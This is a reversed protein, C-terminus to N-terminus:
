RLLQGPAPWAAAPWSRGDGDLADRVAVWAAGGTYGFMEDEIARQSWAAGRLARIRAVDEPRMNKPDAKPARPAPATFLPGGPLFIVDDDGDGDLDGASFGSGTAQEVQPIVVPRARGKTVLAAPRTMGNVVAGYERRAVDGLTLASPRGNPVRSVSYVSRHTKHVNIDIYDATGDGIAEQIADVSVFTSSRSETETVYGYRVERALVRASQGDPRFGDVFDLYVGGFTHELTLYRWTGAADIREILPLVEQVSFRCRVTDM